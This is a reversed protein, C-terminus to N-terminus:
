HGINDITCFLMERGSQLKCEKESSWFVNRIQLRKKECLDIIRREEDRDSYPIRYGRKKKAIYIESQM